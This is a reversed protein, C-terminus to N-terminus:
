LAVMVESEHKFRAMAEASDLSASRLTKLAVMRDPEFQRARYVVGMGGRAIEALLEHGDFNGAKAEEPGKMVDGLLCRPCVGGLLTEDVASGCLTCTSSPRSTM